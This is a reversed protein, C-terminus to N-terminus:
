RKSDRPQGSHIEFDISDVTLLAGSDDEGPLRDVLLLITVQLPQGAAVSTDFTTLFDSSQDPQSELEFGQEQAKKQVQRWVESKPDRPSSQANGIAEKLDVVTTKGGAHIVFAASGSGQHSVFGRV